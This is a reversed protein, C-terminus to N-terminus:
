WGRMVGGSGHPSLMIVVQTTERTDARLIKLAHNVISHNSCRIYRQTRHLASCNPGCSGVTRPSPDGVVLSMGSRRSEPPRLMYGPVKAAIVGSLGATIMPPERSTM